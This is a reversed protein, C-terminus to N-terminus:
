TRIADLSLPLHTDPPTCIDVMQVEPDDILQQADTYVKRIGFERALAEARERFADCIAVLNAREDAHYGPLHAQQAWAHAGIVGVGLTKGDTM